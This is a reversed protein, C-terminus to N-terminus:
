PSQAFGHPRSRCRRVLALDPRPPRLAPRRGPPLRHAPRPALPRRLRRGPSRRRPRESRALAVNAKDDGTTEGLSERLQRWRGPDISHPVGGADLEYGTRVKLRAILRDIPEGLPRPVPWSGVNGHNDLVTFLTGDQSFRAACLRDRLAIGPGIRHSTTLDWLRAPGSSGFVLFETAKPSLPPRQLIESEHMMLPSAPEWTAANWLRAGARLYNGTILIYQGGQTFSVQSVGSTRTESRVKGELTDIVRILGDKSSAALSTSDSSFALSFVYDAFPFSKGSAGPAERDWLVVQFAFEAGAAALFRGNPSFAVNIAIAGVLLRRGGVLHGTEVEWLSVSGAYDGVALTKGDPSFALGAPWNQHPLLPSVPRGTTTDWVQCASWISRDPAIGNDISPIAVRRGDPSFAVTTFSPWRALIPRGVPQGSRADLLRVLGDCQQVALDGTPAIADSGDRDFGWRQTKMGARGPWPEHSAHNDDIKGRVVAPLDDRAFEWISVTGERGATLLFRGDPSFEARRVGDTHRLGSGVQRFTARDWIRAMGEPGGTVFFRGDPSFVASTTRGDLQIERGIQRGTARDVLRLRSYIDGLSSHITEGKANEWILLVRQDPSFLIGSVEDPLAFSAEVRGTGLEWIRGQSGAGGSVLYRCITSGGADLPLVGSQETLRDAKIGSRILNGTLPNWLWAAGREQDVVIVQQGQEAFGIATRGAIDKPAEIRRHGVLDWADLGASERDVVFLGDDGSFLLRRAEDRAEIVPLILRGTSTERVHIDTGGTAFFRGSPSFCAQNAPKGRNVFTGVRRGTSVEWLSATNDDGGTTLVVRGDPSFHGTANVGRGVDLLARRSLLNGEWSSVNVRITRQLAPREAPTRELARAMQLLGFDGEGGQALEVAREFERAAVEEQSAIRLAQETRRAEAEAIATANARRAEANARNAEANARRWQVTVGAFGALFVLLLAALLSAVAKNRRSWRATREWLSVRRALITRDELFRRLDEALADATAYRAEPDRAMAKLVITELDRAIRPAVQRPAPPDQSLLRQVLVARDAEAYAPRRCVLEYLTVGLGYIDAREDGRGSLREPAVYRLTGLFDGTQTLTVTDSADHALGFDTVWVTGQEDLLLNSPKIDRHVVGQAHAYALAEAVQVGIRAADRDGLGVACGDNRDGAGGGPSWGGQGGRRLPPFLRAVVGPSVRAPEVGTKEVGTALAREKLVADLGRGAIYQMVYFHRGEQEGVGFVPVINTHHLRAAARAERRFRALDGLEPLFKLAVHRNLSGQFAECVVGMGGRGIERVIRFEGWSEIPPTPAQEASAREGVVETAACETDPGLEPVRKLESVFPDTAGDFRACQESCEACCDLHEAVASLEPEPLEGLAFASLTEVTPCATQSM